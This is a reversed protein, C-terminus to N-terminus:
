ALKLALRVDELHRRQARGRRISVRSGRLLFFRGDRFRSSLRRARSSRRAALMESDFYLCSLCHSLRKQLSPMLM